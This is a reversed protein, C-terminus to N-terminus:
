TRDSVDVRAPLRPARSVTLLSQIKLAEARLTTALEDWREQPMRHNVASVSLAGFPRGAVDCIAVGVATVGLTVWNGSVAYGRRITEEVHKTLDTKTLRNFPKLRDGIAAILAAAEDPPLASLIALGAAGVGLPRRSGIDLTLVRIPLTGERRDVCVADAGSRMVLYCTDGTARSIANMSHTCKDRIDNHDAAALGLEFALPGLVYRKEKAKLVVLGEDCLQQLLRHVTPHPVATQRALETLAFGNANPVALERLIAIARELSKSKTASASNTKKDMLQVNDCAIRSDVLAHM